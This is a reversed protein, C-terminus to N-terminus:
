DLLDPNDEHFKKFLYENFKKIQEQKQKIKSIEEMCQNETKYRKTILQTLDVQKNITFGGKGGFIPSVTIYERPINYEITLSYPYEKQLFSFLRKRYSIENVFSVDIKQLNCSSWGNVGKLIHCLSKKNM